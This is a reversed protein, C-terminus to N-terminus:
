PVQGVGQEVAPEAERVGEVALGVVAQVRAAPAAEVALDAAPGAALAAV